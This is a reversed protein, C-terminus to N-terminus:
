KLGSKFWADKFPIKDRIELLEEVTPDERVYEPAYVYYYGTEQSFVMETKLGKTKATRVFAVANSASHFTGIVLLYKQKPNPPATEEVVLPKTEEIAPKTAQQQAQNQVVVPPNTTETPTTVPKNVPTVQTPVNQVPRNVNATAANESPAAVNSSDKKQPKETKAVATKTTSTSDITREERKTVLDPSKKGVRLKFQVEHSGGLYNKAQNNAFEHGYGIEMRGKIRLRVLFGPGYDQRYFGGISILNKYTFVGTGEFFNYNDTFRYLVYPMFEIDKSLNFSYSASVAKNNLESFKIGSADADNIFADNEFLRLLSFGITLRKFSYNLGFQGDMKFNNNVQAIVPDTLEEDSLQTLDIRNSFAGVSLGFSIINNRNIPVRYGFTAMASTTSLMVVEQNYLNIGLSVRPSAVWQFNAGVTTPADEIGTWQTRYVLNVESYGSQGIYSPNILYPDFVYQNYVPLEQGSSLICLSILSLTFILRM